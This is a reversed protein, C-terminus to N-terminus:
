NSVDDNKIGRRTKKPTDKLRGFNYNLSFKYNRFYQQGTSNELFGLGTTQVKNDRFKKFPNNLTATLSLKDKILGHSSSFSTNVQAKNISQVSKSVPSKGIVNLNANLRWLSAPRISSSVTFNHYLGKTEPLETGHRVLDLHTLNGNFNFSVTKTANFALYLDTSLATGKGVNAYTSSTIRTNADYIFIRFDLNNFMSYGLGLNVSLKGNKNYVLMLNNILSPRLGPNGSSEFSPNSRDTFPNLRNIGPRKLRQSFGANLSNSGTLQLGVSLSPVVHLYDQKIDGSVLTEELRVGGKVSVQKGTYGISTYGALVDQALSFNNGNLPDTELQGSSANMIRYAYDSKNGRLIVKAGSEFVWKKFATVYDGQMTHEDSGAENEQAYGSLPYNVQEGIELQNNNENAYSSYRYSFTLLKSKSSKFGIQYNLSADLGAGNGKFKNKLRYSELVSANLAHLDSQLNFIERNSNRSLNFQVSILRLDSWEYSIDSGFYGTNSNSRRDGNQILSTMTTGTTNRQLANLTVPVKALSGGAFVSVGLKGAKANFSTGIGPGGAPFAENFNLTGSYGDGPKKNTVINIIGAFGEADYKAPPNTIVEIKQIASAPMSRLVEKPNHTVLASPKGNIFIQFSSNNKLLINQDADVSVFPVKRMMDLLNSGKSDPDSQLDYVLRDSEQRVLPRASTVEVGKLQKVDPRLELTGVDITQPVAGSSTGSATDLRMGSHANTITLAVVKKLYGIRAVHLTYSGAPLKQLIFNGSSDTTGAAMNKLAPDKISITVWAAPRKSLSDVLKGSVSFFAPNTQATACKSLAFINALILLLVIGPGPKFTKM